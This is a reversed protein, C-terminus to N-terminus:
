KQSNTVIPEHTDFPLYKDNKELKEILTVLFKKM